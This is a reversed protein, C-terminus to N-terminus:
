FMNISGSFVKGSELLKGKNGVEFYPILMWGSDIVTEFSEHDGSNKSKFWNLFQVRALGSFIEDNEVSLVEFLDIDSIIFITLFNLLKLCNFM